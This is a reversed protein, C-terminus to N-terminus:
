RLRSRGAAVRDPPSPCRSFITRWRPLLRVPMVYMKSSGLVPSCGLSTRRRLSRRTRKRSLPLVTSTTSCSRSTMATASWTTSMPGPAPVCPPSTTKAPVTRPSAAASVGVPRPSRRTVPTFASTRVGPPQSVTRSTVSCLRLPTSKRTGVPTSVTTVPTAPEPLLVSTDSANTPACGSATTTSWDAIPTDARDVGAVYRPAISATRASKARSFPTGAPSNLKLAAPAHSSHRPRPTIWVSRAYM